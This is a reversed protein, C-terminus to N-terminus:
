SGVNPATGPSSRQAVIKYRFPILSVGQYHSASPVYHAVLVFAPARDRRPTRRRSWRHAGRDARRGDPWEGRALPTAQDPPDPHMGYGALDTLQTPHVM